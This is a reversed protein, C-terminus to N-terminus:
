LFLPVLLINLRGAILRANFFLLLLHGGVLFMLRGLGVLLALILVFLLSLVFLHLALLVRGLLCRQRSTAEVHEKVLRM